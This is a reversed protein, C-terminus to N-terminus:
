PENVRVSTLEIAKTPMDGAQRYVPLHALTGDEAVSYVAVRLNYLGPLADPNVTLTRTETFQTGPKWTSTPKSGNAPWADSQAAKRWQSDILQVSVTYDIDMPTSCAWELEVTIQSGPQVVVSSVNYDRLVMGEGFRIGLGPDTEPRPTLEVSGFRAMDEVIEQTAGTPPLRRGSATEYVGLALTLTDPALATTPIQILHQEHWRYGPTLQTTPLLGHGPFTDRQAIIRDGGGLVHIALSHYTTSPQKTEFILDIQLYDGPRVQRPTILYGQVSLLDEFTVDLPELKPVNTRASLPAPPTYAPLIWLPLALSTLVFLGISMLLGTIRVARSFRRPWWATVGWVLGASWLPIASFILRGQSSWTVTAWRVWSVLVALPWACALARATTLNDWNFPWLRMIIARWTPKDNPRPRLLWHVFRLVLGAGAIIAVTNLIRYVADPMPVNLGGFNGWYGAAFAQREAWLQGLSAPVDRTGLVAYFANLGLWDGYLRYNRVFWWGSILLAPLLVAVVAQAAYIIARHWSTRRQLQYADWFVTAVALPVLAIGSAKTLLACGLVAGLPIYLSWTSGVRNQGARKIRRVMFFLALTSLPIILNDNNVASQIFLYMPTFAQVAAASYALWPHSPSLERLLRWALWVSWAGFGISLFRVVHVALVTGKWPFRERESDHIVLNVNDRDPTAEGARAHPNPQRVDELDSTDIWRTLVAGLIYYFPPQSGEQRWPGSSRGPELPQVPLRWTRAIVEVMPYHWLEDSVEFIPITISYITSLIVFVLVLLWVPAFPTEPRSRLAGARQRAINKRM